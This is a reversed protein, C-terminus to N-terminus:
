RGSYGVVEERNAKADKKGTTQVSCTGHLLIKKRRISDGLGSPHGVGVRKQYVPVYKYEEACKCSHCLVSILTFLPTYM